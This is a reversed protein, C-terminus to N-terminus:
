RKIYLTDAWVTKNKGSIKVTDMVIVKKNTINYNYTPEKSYVYVYYTGERLYEFEYVGNYNTEISNGFYDDEGYVIYVDEKQALYEDRKITFDGNWEETIVVGKITNTGGVGEGKECAITLTAVLSLVITRVNM